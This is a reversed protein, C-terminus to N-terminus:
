WYPAIVEMVGYSWLQMVGYSWLEMVGYSCLEMVGYSGLEMVGDSCLERMDRFRGTCVDVAVRKVYLRSPPLAAARRAAVDRCEAVFKAVTM